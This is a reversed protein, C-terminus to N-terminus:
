QCAACGGGTVSAAGARGTEVQGTLSTGYAAPGEGSFNFVSHALAAQDALSPARFSQCGSLCVLALAAFLLKCVKIYFM